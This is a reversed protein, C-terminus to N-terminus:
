LSYVQKLIAGDIDHPGHFPIHIFKRDVYGNIIAKSSAANFFADEHGLVFVKRISEWKPNQELNVEEPFTSAWLTLSEILRETRHVFRAATAGGQSFGLIHVSKNAAYTSLVQELYHYNDEIDWERVEKTMWSAGVRGSFGNLYFRHPGEPAVIWYDNYLTEFKRIFYRVLQGYGHLVILVKDADPNGATLVNAQRQIIM